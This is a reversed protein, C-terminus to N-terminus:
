ELYKMFIVENQKENYVLEDVEARVTLLGFGGPRLQKEERAYLHGMPGAHAVAAHPLDEFTFGQGPDAIRYFLVKNTRVCSIRVQRNPDLKGGWEVANLLLERFAYSVSERVADPLDAGLRSVVEHLREAAERTCPVVLEVWDPQASTVEITQSAASAKLADQM